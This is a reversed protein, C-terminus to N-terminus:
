GPENGHPIDILSGDFVNRGVVEPAIVLAM